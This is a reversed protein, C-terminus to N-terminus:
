KLSRQYKRLKKLAWEYHSCTNAIFYTGLANNGTWPFVNKQFLQEETYTDLLAMTQKHSTALMKEAEALPTSQHKQWFEQNLEGYNRWNYGEPLFEKDEGSQNSKVWELLLKQWEYLHILVDRVNNDRKWHAEKLKSTDFNFSGTRADEPLKAILDVIKQYSSNSADVLEQKTKPRPM